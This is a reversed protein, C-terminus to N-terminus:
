RRLRQGPVFLLVLGLVCPSLTLMVISSHLMKVLPQTSKLYPQPMSLLDTVEWSNWHVLVSSIGTAVQIRLSGRWKRCSYSAGKQFKVALTSSVASVQEYVVLHM